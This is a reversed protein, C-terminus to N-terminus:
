ENSIDEEVMRKFLSLSLQTDKFDAFKWIDYLFSLTILVVIANLWLFDNMYVSFYALMLLALAIEVGLRRIRGSFLIFCMRIYWYFIVVGASFISAKIIDGVISFVTDVPITTVTGNRMFDSHRDTTGCIEWISIVLLVVFSAMFAYSAVKKTISDIALIGHQSVLSLLGKGFCCFISIGFLFLISMGFGDLKDSLLWHGFYNAVGVIIWVITSLWMVKFLAPYRCEVKDLKVKEMVRIIFNPPM